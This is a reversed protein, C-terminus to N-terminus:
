VWRRYGEDIGAKWIKWGCGGEMDEMLVQYGYRGVVGEEMDEM